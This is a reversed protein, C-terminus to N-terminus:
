VTLTTGTENLAANLTAKNTVATTGDKKFLGAATIVPDTSTTVSANASGKIDNVEKWIGKAVDAGQSTIAADIVTAWQQRSWTSYKNTSADRDQATLSIVGSLDDKINFYKLLNAATAKDTSTKKYLTTYGTERYKTDAVVMALLDTPMKNTEQGALDWKLTAFNRTTGSVATTGFGGVSGIETNLFTSVRTQQAMEEVEMRSM